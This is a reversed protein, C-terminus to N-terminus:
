STRCAATGVMLVFTLAIFNNRANDRAAQDIGPHAEAHAPPHTTRALSDQRAREWKVRAEDPTRPLDRLAREAASVDRAAAGQARLEGGAAGSRDTRHCLSPCIPLRAPTNMPGFIIFVVFKTRGRSPLLELEKVGLDNCCRGM